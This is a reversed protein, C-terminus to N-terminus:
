VHEPVSYWDGGQQQTEWFPNNIGEIFMKDLSARRRTMRANSPRSCQAVDCSWGILHATVRTDSGLRLCWRVIRNVTQRHYTIVLKTGYWFEDEAKLVPYLRCLMLGITYEIVSPFIWDWKESLIWVALTNCHFIYQVNCDLTPHHLFCQNTCRAQKSQHM